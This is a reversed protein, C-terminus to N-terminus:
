TIPQNKQKHNRNRDVLDCNIALSPILLLILLFLFQESGQLESEMSSLIAFETVTKQKQEYQFLLNRVSRIRVGSGIGDVTHVPWFFHVHISFVPSFTYKSGPDSDCSISSNSGTM